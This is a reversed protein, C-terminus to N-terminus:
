RSSNPSSSVSRRRPLGSCRDRWRTAASSRSHSRWPHSPSLRRSATVSSARDPCSSSTTHPHPPPTTSRPPPPETRSPRPLPPFPPTPPTPHPPSSASRLTHGLRSSCPCVRTTRRPRTRSACATPAMGATTAPPTAVWWRCPGGSPLWARRPDHRGRPPPQLLWGAWWPWPSSRHRGTTQRGPPWSPFRPRRADTVIPTPPTGPRMM